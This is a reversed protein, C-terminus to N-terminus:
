DDILEKIYPSKQLKVLARSIAKKVGMPTYESNIDEAEKMLYGVEQLTRSGGGDLGFKHYVVFREVSSLGSNNIAHELHERLYHSDIQNITAASSSLENEIKDRKRSEGGDYNDYFGDLSIERPIQVDEGRFAQNIKNVPVHVIRNQYCAKKMMAMVWWHAYSSFKVGKNKNFKRAARDLGEMGASILDDINMRHSYKQALTDVVWMADKIYQEKEHEEIRVIPLENEM